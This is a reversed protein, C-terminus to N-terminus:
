AKQQVRYLHTKQYKITLVSILSVTRRGSLSANEHPNPEFSPFTAHQQEACGDIRRQKRQKGLDVFRSGARPALCHPAKQHRQGDRQGHQRQQELPNGGHQFFTRQAPRGPPLPAAEARCARKRQNKQAIHRLKQHKIGAREHVVRLPLRELNRSVGIVREMRKQVRQHNAEAKRKGSPKARKFLARRQVREYLHQQQREAKREDARRHRADKRPPSAPQRQGEEHQIWGMGRHRAVADLIHQEGSEKRQKDCKTHLSDGAAAQRAPTSHQM